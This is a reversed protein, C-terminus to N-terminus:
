RRRYLIFTADDPKSPEPGHAVAMREQAAAILRDAARSLPGVRIIDVIEDVYLNDLVGDTALLVTDRQAITIPTSIDVRMNTDGVCNSILHRQEHQVAEEEALLGAEVAFGTPSHPIVRQKIRGRQGVVLLESDGIHYCRLRNRVIEAVVLTTASGSGQALLIENSREISDLIAGRLRESGAVQALSEELSRMAAVSAEHGAPAGGVGDAVALVAAEEGVPIVAAADENPGAKGPDRRSRLSVRGLAFEFDSAEEDAHFLGAASTRRSM